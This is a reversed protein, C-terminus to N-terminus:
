VGVKLKDLWEGGVLELGAAAPHIAWAFDDAPALADDSESRFGDPAAYFLDGTAGCWMRCSVMGDASKIRQGPKCHDM